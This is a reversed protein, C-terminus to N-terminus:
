SLGGIDNHVSELFAVQQADYADVESQAEIAQALLLRSAERLAEAAEAGATRVNLAHGPEHRTVWRTLKADAEDLLDRADLTFTQVRGTHNCTRCGQWTPKGGADSQGTPVWGTGACMECNRMPAEVNM